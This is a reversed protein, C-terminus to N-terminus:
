DSTVENHKEMEQKVENLVRIINLKDVDDRYWGMGWGTHLPIDQLPEAFFINGNNAYVKLGDMTFSEEYITKLYYYMKWVLRESIRPEGDPISYTKWMDLLVNHITKEYDEKYIVYGDVISTIYISDPLRVFSSEHVLTKLADYMRSVLDMPIASYDIKHEEDITM